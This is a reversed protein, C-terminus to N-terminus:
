PTVDLCNITLAPLAGSPVIVPLGIAPIFLAAMDVHYTDTSVINEGTVITRGTIPGGGAPPIPAPGPVTWGGSLATDGTDCKIEWTSFYTGVFVPGAPTLTNQYITEHPASQIDHIADWLAEFPKGNKDGTAYAMTGTLISGAVFALAVLGVIITKQTM